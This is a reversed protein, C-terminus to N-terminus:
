AALGKVDNVQRCDRMAMTLAQDATLLEAVATLYRETAAELEKLARRQEPAMDDTDIVM